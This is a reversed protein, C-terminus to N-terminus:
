VMSDHNLGFQDDKAATRMLNLVGSTNTGSSKRIDSLESLKISDLADRLSAEDTHENLDFEIRADSAFLILRSRSCNTVFPFTRAVFYKMYYRRTYRCSFNM